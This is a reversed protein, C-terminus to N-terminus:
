DAYTQSISNTISSVITTGLLSRKTERYELGVDQSSDRLFRRNNSLKYHTLTSALIDNVLANTETSYPLLRYTPKPTNDELSSRNGFIINYTGSNYFHNSPRDYRLALNVQVLHAKSRFIIEMARIELICSFLSTVQIHNTPIFM